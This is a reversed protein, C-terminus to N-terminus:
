EKTREETRAPCARLVITATDPIGPLWDILPRCAGSLCLEYGATYPSHALLVTEQAGVSPTYHWAGNAYRADPPPEMGAGTGRVRAGVIQLSARDVRWDEEWRIKEISHMWALTFTQVGVWAGIAGASLCLPM